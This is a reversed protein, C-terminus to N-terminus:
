VVFSNQLVVLRKFIVCIVYVSMAFIVYAM